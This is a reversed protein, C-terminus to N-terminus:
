GTSNHLRGTLLRTRAKGQGTGPGRAIIQLCHAQWPQGSVRGLVSQSRPAARWEVCLNNTTDSMDPQASSYLRICLSESILSLKLYVVFQSLMLYMSLRTVVLSIKFQRSYTITLILLTIGQPQSCAEISKYSTWLRCSGWSKIIPSRQSTCSVQQCCIHHHWFSWSFLFCQCCSSYIRM